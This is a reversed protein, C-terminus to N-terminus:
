NNRETLLNVVDVIEDLKAWVKGLDSVHKGTYKLNLKDIHPIIKEYQCHREIKFDPFNFKIKFGDQNVEKKDEDTWRWKPSDCAHAPNDGETIEYFLCDKCKPLNFM